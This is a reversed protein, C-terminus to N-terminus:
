WAECSCTARAWVAYAWTQWTRCSHRWTQRTVCPNFWERTLEYAVMIYEVRPFSTM